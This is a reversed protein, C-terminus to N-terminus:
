VFQRAAYEEATLDSHINPWVDRELPGLRNLAEVKALNAKFVGFREPQEAATYQKSFHHMFEGFWSEHSELPQAVAGGKTLVVSVSLFAIKATVTAQDSNPDYTLSTLTGGGPAKALTDHICDGPKDKNPLTITTKGDYSYAEKDCDVTLPGNIKIEAQTSSEVTVTITVTTGLVSKSGKYTGSPTAEVPVSAAEAALTMAFVLAKLM